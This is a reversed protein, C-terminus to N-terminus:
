LTRTSSPRSPVAVPLMYAHVSGFLVEDIGRLGWVRAYEATHGLWLGVLSILVLNGALLRSTRRPAMAM